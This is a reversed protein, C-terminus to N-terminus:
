FNAFECHFDLKVLEVRSKMMGAGHGEDMFGDMLRCSGKFFQSEFALHPANTHTHIHM